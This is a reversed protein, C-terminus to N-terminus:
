TLNARPLAGGPPTPPQPIGTPHAPDPEGRGPEDWQTHKWVIPAAVAISSYTGIIVGVVFAFAFSRVAEGGFIYLVLASGLVTGGTIVTRSITENISKNIISRTAFPLKGKKERIRDMVIITDNNSYGLITLVSAIVNLDIKFPMIGLSASLGPFAQYVLAAAAIAGTAVISDHVSTATAAAAYRFSTFRVWIYIIIGLTSLVVAILAQAVFTAAISPSFSEVSALSSARTLMDVTMRWEPQKIVAAWREPDVLYSYAEDHVLLVAATVADDSGALVVFRHPRGITEAYDPQQRIRSLRDELQRLSPPPEINELVIAAGGVFDPVNLRLGPRNISEGLNASVIPVVPLLSIETLEQGKFRLAPQTEMKDQFAQSLASQVLQDNTLVTKIEFQSSTVGDARPNIVSIQPPKLRTLLQQQPDTATKANDAIAEVRQEVEARTMTLPNGDPGDKLQITIKTGGRFQNDLADSGRYALVAIAAFTLVVSIGIFFFRYRMWDINFTLARQVAPVALPLMSFSRVGGKDVLWAFIIRTIFLQAFFTTLTGISMTIAFGRIEQTGVLGLVVCTILNTINGDVIASMAKAYGLRVATKADAGNRLEERMREYILVNADVAMGFTLVVGAIGPLTFAARNLAMAAVLLLANCLLAVVAIVGCNFYYIVMFISVMIFAAAGTILGRRLNDAGLDPGVTNTGIPEPSLKAALSGASLVRVIYNIEEQSFDGAIQGQRTIRSNIRPATFVEDDLIVAMQRGTNNGTLDGMKTGGLADMQFAIAPRGIEDATPRSSELRWSGEAQTLRKGKVDWALMYYQGDFEEVVYGRNNFFAAPNELLAKLQDNSDFWSDIKNIRYWRTDAARAGRPGKARLEERLRAEDSLEGPNVTIRFTLVGAGRLLRVLDSPDDLTQRNKQYTDFAAVVTELQASAGPHRENLRTLARSRPSPIVQRDPSQPDGITRDRAPLDLARRVENVSVATAIAGDRALEFQREAQAPAAAAAFLEDQAQNLTAEITAIADEPDKRERAEALAKGAADIARDLTPRSANFAARASRAADYAAAAQNLKELRASDGSAFDTIKATREEPSLEMARSFEDATLSGSALKALQAEFEARFQKVRASPLPMTIELRNQGQPVISIEMVGSPDIRNKLLEVMRNMTDPPDGPRINVQYVMSTGGALDKGLRLKEGVPLIAWVALILLAVCLFTNRILHRM